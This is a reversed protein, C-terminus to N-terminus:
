KRPLKCVEYSTPMVMAVPNGVAMTAEPGNGQGAGRPADSSPAGQTSPALLGALCHRASAPNAFPLQCRPSQGEHTIPKQLFCIKFNKSASFSM